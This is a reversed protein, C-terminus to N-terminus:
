AVGQSLPSGKPKNRQKERIKEVKTWIRALEVEGADHMHMRNALCLAALTVMVGGVEQPPDGVPRGYVYDVLMLVDEKSCGTAQVLELAEEIFRHNREVVDSAIEAGFCAMMWPEVSSQFDPYYEATPATGTDTTPSEESEDNPLENFGVLNVLVYCVGLYGVIYLAAEALADFM